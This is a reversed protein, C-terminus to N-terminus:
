ERASTLRWSVAALQTAAARVMVHGAACGDVERDAIFSLPAGPPYQDPADSAGGDEDVATWAQIIVKV